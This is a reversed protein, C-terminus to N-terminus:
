LISVVIIMQYFGGMVIISIICFTIISTTTYEDNVSHESLALEEEINKTYKRMQDKCCDQSVTAKVVQM